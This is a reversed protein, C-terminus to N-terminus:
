CSGISPMATSSRISRTSCAPATDKDISVKSFLRERLLEAAENHIGRRGIDIPELREIGPRCIAYM